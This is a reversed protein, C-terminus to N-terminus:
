TCFEWDDEDVVNTCVLATRGARRLDADITLYGLSSEVGDQPIPSATLGAVDGGSGCGRGSEGEEEEKEWLHARYNGGSFTHACGAWGCTKGRALLLLHTDEIHARLAPVGPFASAACDTWECLCETGALAAHSPRRARHTSLDQACTFAKDCGPHACMYPRYNTHRGLHQMRPTRATSTHGCGSWRCVFPGNSVPPEHAAELHEFLAKDDAYPGSSACELWLCRAQSPNFM